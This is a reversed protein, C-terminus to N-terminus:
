NNNTYLICNQDAEETKSLTSELLKLKELELISVLLKHFFTEQTSTTFRDLNLVIYVQKKKQFNQPKTNIEIGCANQQIHHYLSTEYVLVWNRLSRNAWHLRLTLSYVNQLTLAIYMIFQRTWHDLRNEWTELLLDLLTNLNTGGGEIHKQCIYSRYTNVFKRRQQLWIEFSQFEIM